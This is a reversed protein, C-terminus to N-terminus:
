GEKGLMDVAGPPGGGNEVMMAQAREPFRGDDCLTRFRGAVIRQSSAIRMTGKVACNKM